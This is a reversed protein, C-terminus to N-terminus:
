PQPDPEQAASGAHSHREEQLRVFHRNHLVRMMDVRVGRIVYLLSGEM